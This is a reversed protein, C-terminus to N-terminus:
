TEKEHEAIGMAIKIKTGGDTAIKLEGHLEDRVLTQVIQLGLHSSAALDFDKPLGVGNDAVEVDLRRGKRQLGVTVKGARGDTFAHEFANQILETVVMALSTATDAPVLGSTGKVDVAFTSERTGVTQIVVDGLKAVLAAFDVSEKEQGALMEHVVAISSIRSVSEMLAERAESTELRRAQLRLLSAITQLNNKVRHHMERITAEKIRLEQDRRRLDTIDRVIALAGQSRGADLLPIARKLIVRGRESTEEQRAQKSELATVIPEERPSIEQIRRGVLNGEVGLRRYISVANPSAYAISGDADIKMIGDGATRTASFSPASAGVLENEGLMQMIQDAMSMYMLEMESTPGPLAMERSIVAVTQGDFTIPVAKAEVKRGNSEYTVLEFPRTRAFVDAIAPDEPKSLLEGVRKEGYLSIATNPKAEAVVVFGGDKGKCFLLIDAYSLDALLQMTHSVQVLREIQAGSLDTLEKCIRRIRQM